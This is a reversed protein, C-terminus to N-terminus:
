RQFQNKGYTNETEMWLYTGYSCNVLWFAFQAVMCWNGANAWMAISAADIVMWYAWQERYRLIMLMQAAFAPVTSMSDLMPQTDDTKSLINSVIIIAFLVVFSITINGSVSLKRPIVTETDKDYHKMWVFMGYLMTIAYFAYEMLEGYLRQELALFVYTVLQIWAFIYFSFKKQSCLVVSIVGAIGSILSLATDGGICATIVQILIGCLMFITGFRSPFLENKVKQLM